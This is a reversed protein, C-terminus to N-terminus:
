RISVNLMTMGYLFRKTEIEASLSPKYGDLDMIAKDVEDANVSFLYPDSLLEELASFNFPDTVFLFQNDNTM